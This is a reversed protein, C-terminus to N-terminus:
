QIGACSFEMQVVMIAIDVVLSTNSPLISEPRAEGDVMYRM